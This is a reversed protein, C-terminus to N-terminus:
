TNSSSTSNHIGGDAIELAAATSLLLWANVIAPDESEPIVTYLLLLEMGVGYWPDAPSGMQKSYVLM